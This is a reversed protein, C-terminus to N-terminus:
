WREAARKSAPPGIPTASCASRRTAGDGNQAVDPQRNRVAAEILEPLAWGTLNPIEMEYAAQEAAALADAYRGLGNCLIARAWTALQAGYWAGSELSDAASAVTLELAEPRGQYAGHVLDGASYWGAGTAENVANYEALLATATAFDGCQSALLGRGHLAIALPALAGSARALEIHKASLVDWSRWDWLFSAGSTAM